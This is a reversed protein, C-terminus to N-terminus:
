IAEFDILRSYDMLTLLAKSETEIGSEEVAAIPNLGGPVVIGVREGAVQVGLLAQGAKGIMLARGIGAAEVKRIIAEAENVSAAPIERLGALIKGAGYAARAASTMRSKIFIEHPDLTSGSYNIIETFRLPRGNDVEILGGFVSEVNIAHRLLIGNLNISCPTGFGMKGHPVEISGIKEGSEIIAVKSGTSFKKKFVPAMFKIAKKFDKKGIYSVNLIVNGKKEYLDFDMKYAMTEIRANMFGLKDSVFANRLEEIGKSTIVRGEKWFIKVLGRENMMKLHYRVTRESMEIGQDKLKEAIEASGIPGSTESVIKLIANIRREIEDTM